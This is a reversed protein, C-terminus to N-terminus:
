HAYFIFKLRSYTIVIGFTQWSLLSIVLLQHFCAHKSNLRLYKEIINFIGKCSFGAIIGLSGGLCLIKSFIVLIFVFKRGCGSRLLYSSLLLDVLTM